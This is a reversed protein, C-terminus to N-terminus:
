YYPKSSINFGYRLKVQWSRLYSLGIRSPPAPLVSNPYTFGRPHFEYVDTLPPDGNMHIDVRSISIPTQPNGEPIIPPEGGGVGGIRFHVREM